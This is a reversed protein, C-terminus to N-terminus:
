VFFFILCIANHFRMTCFLPLYFGAQLACDIKFNNLTQMMWLVHMLIGVAALSCQGPWVKIMQTWKHLGVNLDLFMVVALPQKMTPKSTESAHIWGGLGLRSIVLHRVNLYQAYQSSTCVVEHISACFQVFEKYAFVQM